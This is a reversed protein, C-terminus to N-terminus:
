YNSATPQTAPLVQDLRQFGAAATGQLGLRFHILIPQCFYNLMNDHKQSLLAVTILQQQM